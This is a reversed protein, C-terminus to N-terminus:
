IETWRQEKYLNTFRFHESGNRQDVLKFPGKQGVAQNASLRFWEFGTTNLQMKSGCLDCLFVYTRVCNTVFDVSSKQM